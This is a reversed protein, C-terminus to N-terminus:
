QGRITVAIPCHDSPMADGREDYVLESFAKDWRQFARASLVIHDIFDAYRGDNCGPGRPGGGGELAAIHLGGDANWAQWVEMDEPKLRRNFDGLIAFAEGARERAEIWSKIIPVQEMLPPCDEDDAKFGAACGSKLHVNLLRLAQAGKLMVDIGWRVPRGGDREVDLATM